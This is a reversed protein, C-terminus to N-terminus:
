DNFSNENEPTSTFQRSPAPGVRRVLAVWSQARDTQATIADQQARNLQRRTEGLEFQAIAGAEFRASNARLAFRAQELSEQATQVRLDASQRAALADELDRVTTRAILQLQAVAERYGAQAVRVNAAGAGGDLLPGSLTAGLSNSIFTTGVGFSRIWQGTLVGVLDLRPLREARAVAVEAWRAAAENEAALVDPNALLITAPLALQTEPPIPIRDYDVPELLNLNAMAVPESGFEARITSAELGSLAALANTLRACMEQQAIRQTRATLFNSQVAAVEVPAIAGFSLRKRAIGLEVERSTLDSQLVKRTLVCARLAIANDVIDGILSMRAGNAEAIRADLRRRAATTGERVRGWLDVEWNARAGFSASKQVSPGSSPDAAERARTASGELTIGPLRGANAGTALARARDVRAAAEALTPNDSLGAEVLRDISPDHLRSWWDQGAMTVINPADSSASAGNVWAGPVDLEARQYDPQLTCATLLNATILLAARVPLTGISSREADGNSHM